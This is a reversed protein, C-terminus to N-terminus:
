IIHKILPEETQVLTIGEAGIEVYPKGGVFWAVAAIIIFITILTSLVKKSNNKKNKKKAM